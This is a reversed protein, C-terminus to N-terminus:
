SDTSRSSERRSRPAAWMSALCMNCLVNREQLLCDAVLICWRRCCPGSIDLLPVLQRCLPGLPGVMGGTSGPLRNKRLAGAPTAPERYVSQHQMYRESRRLPTKVHCFSGIFRLLLYLAGQRFGSCLRGALLHLGRGLGCNRADRIFGGWGADRIRLGIDCGQVRKLHVEIGVAVGLRHHAAEAGRDVRHLGGMVPALGLGDEVLLVLLQEAGLVGALEELAELALGRHEGAGLTGLDPDQAALAGAEHIDRGLLLCGERAKQGLGTGDPVLGLCRIVPCAELGIEVTDDIRHAMDRVALIRALVGVIHPEVVILLACAAGEVVVEEAFHLLGDHREELLDGLTRLEGAPDDLPAELCLALPGEGAVEHVELPEIRIYHHERLGLVGVRIADGRVIRHDGGMDVLVIYERVEVRHEMLSPVGEVLGAHVGLEVVGGELAAGRHAHM